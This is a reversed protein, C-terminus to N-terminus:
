RRYYEDRAQRHLMNYTSFPIRKLDPTIIHVCEKQAAKTDFNYKDLFYAISIRFTNDDVFKLKEEKSKVLFNLPLSKKIDTILDCCDCPLNFIQSSDKFNALVDEVRFMFTSGIYDKLPSLDKGRTIPTMAGKKDRLLFTLANRETNCPLPIFDDIKLLGSTQEEIRKIVGSLTIRDSPAPQDSYYAMPQFNVGRVCKT